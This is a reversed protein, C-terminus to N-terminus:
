VEEPRMAPPRAPPPTGRASERRVIGLEADYVRRRQPDTLTDRAEILERMRDAADPATSRDPHYKLALRKFAAEIVEQEAAPDVQLVQYYTRRGATGASRDDRGAAFTPGLGGLNGQQKIRASLEDQSMLRRAFDDKLNDPVGFRSHCTKCELVQQQAFPVTPVLYVTLKRKTDYLAFVGVTDCAPCREIVYGLLDTYDRTGIWPLVRM